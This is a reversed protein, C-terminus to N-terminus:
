LIDGSNKTKVDRSLKINERKGFILILIFDTGHTYRMPNGAIKPGM